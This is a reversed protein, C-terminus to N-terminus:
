HQIIATEAAPHGLILFLIPNLCCGNRCSQLNKDLQETKVEWSNLDMLGDTRTHVFIERANGKKYEVNAQTYRRIKEKETSHVM